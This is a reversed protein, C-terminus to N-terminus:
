VRAAFDSVQILAEHNLLHGCALRVVDTGLLSTTRGRLRAPPLFIDHDGTAVVCPSAAARRLEAEPLVPPGLGKRVSRGVVSMWEIQEPTPSQNPGCMRALLASSTKPGPAIMWAASSCLLGVPTSLRRIGAPSVLVRGAIRPSSAMMAIAAGLSHGVVTVPRDLRDLVQTLWAGLQYMRRDQDRRECSLGPEGPVDLTILRQNTSLMEIEPLSAAASFNSGPVFVITRAAGEDGTFLLHTPGARTDWVERTHPLSWGELKNECWRTVRQHSVGDKYDKYIDTM